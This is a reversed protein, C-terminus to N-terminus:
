KQVVVRRIATEGDVTVRVFYAGQAMNSLNVNQSLNSLKGVNQSQLTQGLTNLVEIRVDAASALALSLTVIGSTPNPSIVFSQISAPDETGVTTVTASATGQLSCKDSVTCTYTGVPVGALDQTTAGNSWLYSYPSDDGLIEGIGGAPTLNVSGTGAVATATIDDTLPLFLVPTSVGIYSCGNTLDIDFLNIAPTSPDGDVGGGIVIPTIYYLDYPFGGNNLYGVAFPAALFGTSGVLIDNGTPLNNPDVPASTVAWALGSIVGENPLTFSAADVTILDALQEGECLYLSSVEYTGVEGASCPVSPVKTIEICYQGLAVVGGFEFGDILMYYNQGAETELDVASRWDPNGDAFLDDNCAVETLDTCNDGAYILMQTDGPDTQATGIYNTANCPVTEIHYKEGDGVFTYWMTTNLIDAGTTEGWCDVAPDTASVTATTNDFIGTTQPLVQGFSLTLDVAADCIDVNYAIAPLQIYEVEDIYALYTADAAYFDIAGFNTTYAWARLLTNNVYLKAIDNDLDVIIKIPFWQDFPFTGSAAPTPSINDVVGTVRFYVENAFTQGPVLSNGQINFYTAKGAPVYYKWSLSYRGTTKNGLQLLQDDGAAGDQRVRMSKTGNSAFTNVVDCGVINAAGDNLDWPIWHPSQPSVNGFNYTEFDDCIISNPDLACPVVCAACSNFCIAPLVVDESGVTITRNFGGFGDSVGCAAQGAEWGNPGNKFKYQATTGEELAVTASWVGGGDNTMAVDGFNSFTGALKMGAPDVTLLSANVKFTVDHIPTSYEYLELDDVKWYYEFNGAWRFQVIVSAQGDAEPVAVDIFGEYFQFNTGVEAVLNDFEPVNHYTFSTGGNTSIGIRAVDAGSFTRFFTYFRLHVDSKGTCSAPNGTGTLTVDHAGDGNGDSDYWFYGTSGTPIGVTPGNFLGADLDDTWTWEVPALSANTGGHIWNNEAVLVNTFTETWFTQAFSAQFGLALTLVVLLSKFTMTKAM